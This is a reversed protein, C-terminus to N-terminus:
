ESVKYIIDNM